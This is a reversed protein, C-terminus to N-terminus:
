SSRRPTFAIPAIGAGLNPKDAARWAHGYVVEFTAPLKGDMRFQEYASELKQLFGRGLLGRPRGDTANHAGISKLDRMV